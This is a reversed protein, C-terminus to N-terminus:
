AIILGAIEGQIFLVHSYMPYRGRGPCFHSKRSYLSIHCAAGSCCLSLLLLYSEIARRPIPVGFLPHSGVQIGLKWAGSYLYNSWDVIRLSM